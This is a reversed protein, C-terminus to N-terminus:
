FEPQWIIHDFPVESSGMKPLKRMWYWGPGPDGSSFIGVTVYMRTSSSSPEISETM